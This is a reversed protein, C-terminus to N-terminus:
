KKEGNITRQLAWLAGDLTNDIASAVSQIVEGTEHNRITWGARKGMMVAPEAMAYLQSDAYVPYGRVVTGNSFTFERKRGGRTVFVAM